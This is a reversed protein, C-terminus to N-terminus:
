TVRSAKKLKIEVRVRARERQHPMTVVRVQKSKKQKADIERASRERDLMCRKWSEMRSKPVTRMLLRSLASHNSSHCDDKQEDREDKASPVLTVNTPDLGSEASTSSDIDNREIVSPSATYSAPLFCPKRNPFFSTDGKGSTAAETDSQAM